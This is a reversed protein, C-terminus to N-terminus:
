PRLRELIRRTPDLFAIQLLRRLAVSAVQLRGTVTEDLWYDAVQAAIDPSAGEARAQRYRRTWVAQEASMPQEHETM